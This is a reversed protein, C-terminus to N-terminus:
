PTRIVKRQSLNLLSQSASSVLINARVTTPNTASKNIATASKTVPCSSQSLARTKHCPVGQFSKNSASSGPRRRGFVPVPPAEPKIWETGSYELRECQSSLVSKLQPRTGVPQARMCWRQAAAPTRCWWRWWSGRWQKGAGPSAQLRRVREMMRPCLAVYKTRCIIQGVLPPRLVLM